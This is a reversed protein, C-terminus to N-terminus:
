MPRLTLGNSTLPQVMFHFKAPSHPHQQQFSAIIRRCVMNSNEYNAEPLMVIFQSVSCRAFADGRRLHTRIHDAFLEMVRDHNRGTLPKTTKSGISFLAIHAVRGTRVMARSEAHCLVRFYDYECQMAGAADDKLHEQLAEISIQKDNLANSAVRYLATTEDSPFIGFDNMLRQRLEEYVAIAGSQDGLETLASMLLQEHYPEEFIAKRCLTAAEQHRGRTSLLPVCDIVTQVYLNHYHSSIPILWIESSLRPLFDGHYLELAELRDTLWVDEDSNDTYCRTEFIEADMTLPYEDNWLYGGDRNVLLTHGAGDWLNNLLTRARHFTIKLTNEPNSISPDDGWLIKILEPIPIVRGRNCLLYALLMWVKKARNDSDSVQRQGACLTFEGLTRIYLAEM